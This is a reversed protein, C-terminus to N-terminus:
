KKKKDPFGDLKFNVYNGNMGDYVVYAEYEKGKAKSFLTFKTKKKAILSKAKATTIKVDSGFIKSTEFLKFNCEKKSCPYFTKNEKTKYEYVPSKCVPCEGLSEKLSDRNIKEIETNSSVIINIEKATLDVINEITLENNYIKKLMTSFEVSKEKYLNIKLKDLIEIFQIGLSEISYTDGKQSIYNSKKANEIIDTRTGETGIEIGKLIDKYEDDDNVIEDDILNDDNVEKFPNKLFNALREETIKKPPTTKKKVLKFNVKFEEGVEFNPLNNNIEQPEYKLFGKQKVISGKFPFVVNGVGISLITESIIAEEKLFNSIFRNFIAQYVIKEKDNLLDKDIDPIKNTITIASHSEIKSDDFIKKSDKFEIQYDQEQLLELINKVKDKENESLYETNTRPYTLFGRLYLDQIIKESTAFNMKFNKSLFSQLRSLSFLKGPYKKKEKTELSIVVAKSRNLENAFNEAEHKETDSFKRETSLKFEIDGKRITDEVQFYDKAKFNKIKIDRDYIFKVIPIIVRGSRLFIGSKVSLYITTNIGLLWDVYTRAFGEKSLNRYENNNKLNQLQKKVTNETQDPLWMRKIPKNIDLRDIILDVVVQGERDSDGCHIIEAVDNRHALSKIVEFQEKIGDKEIFKFEFPEPIFPLNIETWKPKEVGLYDGVDKLCFLHGFAFTVIFNDSEYYGDNRNFVKLFTAVNKALSPKECIILKKM